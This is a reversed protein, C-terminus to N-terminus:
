LEVKLRGMSRPMFCEPHTNEYAKKGKVFRRIYKKGKRIVRGCEYCDYDKRATASNAM